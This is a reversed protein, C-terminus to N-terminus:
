IRLAPYFPVLAWAYGKNYDILGGTFAPWWSHSYAAYDSTAKALDLMSGEEGEFYPPFYSAQYELRLYLM